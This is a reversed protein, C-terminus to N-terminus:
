FSLAVNIRVSLRSNAQALREWEGDRDVIQKFGVGRLFCLHEASFQPDDLANRVSSIIRVNLGRKCAAVRSISRLECLYDAVARM